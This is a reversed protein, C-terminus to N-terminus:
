TTPPRKVRIIPDCMFSQGTITDYVWLEFYINTDYDGDDLKVVIRNNHMKKLTTHQPQDASIWRFKYRNAVDQHFKFVVKRNVEDNAFEFSEPTYLYQYNDGIEVPKAEAPPVQDPAWLNLYFTRANAQASEVSTSQEIDTKAVPAAFSLSSFTLSFAAVLSFIARECKRKRTIVNLPNM